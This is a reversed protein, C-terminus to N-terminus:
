DSHACTISTQGWAFIQILLLIKLIYSVREPLLRLCKEKLYKNEQYYKKKVHKPHIKTNCKEICVASKAIENYKLAKSSKRLQSTNQKSQQQKKLSM